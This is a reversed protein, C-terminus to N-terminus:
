GGQRCFGNYRGALTRTQSEGAAYATAALNPVVFEFHQEVAGGDATLYVQDTSTSWLSAEWDVIRDDIHCQKAEGALLDYKAVDQRVQLMESSEEVHRLSCFDVAPAAERFARRLSEIMFAGSFSRGGRPPGARIKGRAVEGPSPPDACPTPLRAGPQGRHQL